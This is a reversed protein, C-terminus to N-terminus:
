IDRDVNNFASVIREMEGVFYMKSFDQMQLILCVM